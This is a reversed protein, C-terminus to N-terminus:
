KFRITCDKAWGCCVAGEIAEGTPTLAQFGASSDNTDGRGCEFMGIDRIEIHTYGHKKLLRRANLSAETSTPILSVVWLLAGVFIFLMTGIALVTQFDWDVLSVWWPPSMSRRFAELEKDDDM